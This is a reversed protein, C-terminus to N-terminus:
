KCNLYEMLFVFFPCGTGNEGLQNIGRTFPTLEYEVRGRTSIRYEFRDLHNISLPWAAKLRSVFSIAISQLPYGGRCNSKSRERERQKQRAKAKPAILIIFFVGGNLGKFLWISTSRTTHM